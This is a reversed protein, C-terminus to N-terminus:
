QTLRELVEAVLVGSEDRTGRARLRDGITSADVVEHMARVADRPPVMFISPVRVLEQAGPATELTLDFGGDVPRDDKVAVLTGVVEVGTVPAATPSPRHDTSCGTAALLTVTALTFALTMLRAAFAATTRQLTM